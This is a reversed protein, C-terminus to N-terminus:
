GEEVGIVNKRGHRNRESSDEEGRERFIEYCTMLPIEVIFATGSRVVMPVRLWPKRRYAVAAATLPWWRCVQLVSGEDVISTPRALM